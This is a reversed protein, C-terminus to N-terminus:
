VTSPMRGLLTVALPSEAVIVVGTETPFAVKTYTTIEPTVFGGALIELSSETAVEDSVIGDCADNAVPVSIESRLPGEGL